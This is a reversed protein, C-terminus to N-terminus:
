SFLKFTREVNDKAVTKLTEMEQKIANRENEIGALDADYKREKVDIKRMDAEYKAEAKKIEKEDPVERLDVDVAVSTDSFSRNEKDYVQLIVYGSNISNTLWEYSNCYEDPIVIFNDTEPTGFISVGTTIESKEQDITSYKNIYAGSSNKQYEEFDQGQISHWINTYWEVEYKDDSHIYTIKPRRSYWGDLDEKDHSYSLGALSASLHNQFASVAEAVNESDAGEISNYNKCLYYMDIAWQKFTKCSGNTNYISSLKDFETDLSTDGFPLDGDLVPVVRGTDLVESTKKFITDRLGGNDDVEARTIDSGSLKQSQGTSTSVYANDSQYFDRNYGSIGYGKDSTYNIIHALVHAYCAVDEALAKEYCIDSAEVFADALTQTGDEAYYADIDPEDSRWAIVDPDEENTNYVVQVKINVDQSRMFGVLDTSNEYADYVSQPILIKGDITTLNYQNPLKAYTYVDQASFPIYNVSADNNLFKAEFKTKDLANLYENYVRSSENAMQLKMAEIKAAKYEIQHMRATLSLLRAQSSSMGM